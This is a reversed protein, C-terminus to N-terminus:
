TLRCKSRTSALSHREVSNQCLRYRFPRALVKESADALPLPLLIQAEGLPVGTGSGRSRGGDDGLEQKRLGAFPVQM